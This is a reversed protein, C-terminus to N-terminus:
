LVHPVADAKATVTPDAGKLSDVYSHFDRTVEVQGLLSLQEHKSGEMRRWVQKIKKSNFSLCAIAMLVCLLVFKKDQISHWTDQREAHFHEVVAVASNVSEIVGRTIGVANLCEKRIDARHDELCKLMGSDTSDCFRDIDASCVFPVAQSVDEICSPFNEQAHQGLCVLWSPATPCYHEVMGQCSMPVQEMNAPGIAEKFAPLVKGQFRPDMEQLMNLLIADPAHHPHHTGGDGSNLPGPFLKRILTLQHEIFWDEDNKQVNNDLLAAFTTLDTKVSPGGKGDLVDHLLKEMVVNSQKSGIDTEHGRLWVAAMEALEEPDWDNDVDPSPEEARAIVVLLVLRHLAM